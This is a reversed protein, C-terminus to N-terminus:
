FLWFILCSYNPLVMTRVTKKQIHKKNNKQSWGIVELRESFDISMVEASFRTSCWWYSEQKKRLTKEDSLYADLRRLLCKALNIKMWNLLEFRQILCTVTAYVKKKRKKQTLLSPFDKFFCCWGTSTLLTLNRDVLFRRGNTYRPNATANWGYCM